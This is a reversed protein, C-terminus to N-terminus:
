VLIIFTKKEVKISSLKSLQLPWPTCYGVKSLCVSSQSVSSMVFVRFFLRQVFFAYLVLASFNSVISIVFVIYFLGLVYRIRFLCVSSLSSSSMFFVVHLLFKICIEKLSDTYCVRSMVFVLFLFVKRVAQELPGEGEEDSGSVKGKEQEQM